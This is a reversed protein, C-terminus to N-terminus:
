PLAEAILEANTVLMGILTEAASGPEGLSGTYLEIVEIEHHVEAAVADALAATETTEVFLAGLGEREITEVLAALEASSPQALTSGGPVVTGLLEFGYRDAFYGLARHNTVLKRAEGPIAGLIEQIREDATHLEAVYRDANWAADGTIAALEDAVVAAAAAVRLPDLWFHPDLGDSSDNDGTSAEGDFRLPNLHEGVYVVNAGDMAAGDLVNALGEELGLGSALVLDAQQIRAVQQSSAQYDHPDVGTPLLVEVTAPGGAINRALDGLITTTVVINIADGEAGSRDPDGCAAGGYALVFALVGISSTKLREIRLRYHSDNEAM